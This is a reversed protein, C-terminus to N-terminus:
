RQGAYMRTLFTDIDAEALASPFAPHAPTVHAVEVTALQPVWGAYLVEEGYTQEPRESREIEYSGMDMVIAM